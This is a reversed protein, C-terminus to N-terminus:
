LGRREILEAYVERRHGLRALEIGHDAALFLDLPDDLDQAATRLVVRREDALGTDALGRDGLPERVPDDLPVHGLRELALAHEGEVDARQDRAGLVAALELLAELLDDLLQAVSVVDDQEDVLQV